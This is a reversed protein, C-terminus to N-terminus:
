VRNVEGMFSVRTLFKSLICRITKQKYVKQKSKVEALKAFSGVVLVVIQM